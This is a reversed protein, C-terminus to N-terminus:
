FEAFSANIGPQIWNVVSGQSTLKRPFKQESAVSKLSPRSAQADAKHASKESLAHGNEGSKRWKLRIM